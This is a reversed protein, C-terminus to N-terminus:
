SNKSKNVKLILKNLIYKSSPNYAYAETATIIKGSYKTIRDHKRIRCTAFLGLSAGAAGAIISNDTISECYNLDDFTNDNHPFVNEDTQTPPPPMTADVTQLSPSLSADVTM